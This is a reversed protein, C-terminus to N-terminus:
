AAGKMAAYALLLKRGATYRWAFLAVVAVLLWTLAPAKGAAKLVPQLVNLLPGALVLLLLLLVGGGAIAAFSASKQQDLQPRILFLSLWGAALYACHRQFSGQQADHLLHDYLRTQWSLKRM